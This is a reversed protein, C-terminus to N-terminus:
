TSVYTKLQRGTLGTSIGYKKIEAVRREEEKDWVMMVFCLEVIYTAHGISAFDWGSVDTVRGVQKPGNETRLVYYHPQLTVTELNVIM